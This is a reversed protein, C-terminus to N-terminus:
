LSMEKRYLAASAAIKKELLPLAVTLIIGSGNKKRNIHECLILISFLLDTEFIIKGNHRFFRFYLVINLTLEVKKERLM